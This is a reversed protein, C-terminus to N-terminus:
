PRWAAITTKIKQRYVPDPYVKEFFQGIDELEEKPWGYIEEFKRNIYTARGQDIFNVALGIPLNELVAEIFQNRELLEKETAIRHMAIAVLHTVTEM